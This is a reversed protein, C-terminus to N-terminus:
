STFSPICIDLFKDAPNFRGSFYAWMLFIRSITRLCCEQGKLRTIGGGAEGEAELNM